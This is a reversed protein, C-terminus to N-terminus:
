NVRKGFVVRPTEQSVQVAVKQEPPPLEQPAAPIDELTLRIAPAAAVRGEPLFRAIIKGHSGFGLPLGDKIVPGNRMLHQFIEVLCQNIEFPSLPVPDLELERGTFALLGQTAAGVTPRGDAMPIGVSYRVSMWLMDPMRGAILAMAMHWIGDGDDIANSEAFVTAAIPLHKALAGAVITVATAGAIATAHDYSNAALSVVVHARSFRMVGAADAWSINRQVAEQWAELELQTAVFMVTVSLGNIKLIFSKGHDDAVGLSDIQYASEGVLSRLTDIIRSELIMAPETLALYTKFHSM